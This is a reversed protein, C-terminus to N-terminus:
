FKVQPKRDEDYGTAEFFSSMSKEFPTAKLRATNRGDSM